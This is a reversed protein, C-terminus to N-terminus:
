TSIMAIGLIILVVGILQSGRLREKLFVAALVVSVVPYLSSVVAVLSLMGFTTATTYALAAAADLAGIMVVVPLHLANISLKPRKWSVAILVLLFSALRSSTAAWLPDVAGAVDMMMFFAGFGLAAGLAPIIGRTTVLKEVRTEKQLSILVGGCLAAVIGFAQIVHPIEGQILSATVPVLACLASVPVVISVAGVALGRYLCYVGSIGAVGGLLAFVLNPDSPMPMGRIITCIIFVTFGTASTYALLTLVPLARAKSGALFQSLGWCFCAILSLNIAIM